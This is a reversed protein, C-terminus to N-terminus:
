ELPVVRTGEADALGAAALEGVDGPPIALGTFSTGGLAAGVPSGPLALTSSQRCIEAASPTSTKRRTLSDPFSGSYRMSSGSPFISNGFTPLSMLWCATLTAM